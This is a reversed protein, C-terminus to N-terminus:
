ESIVSYLESIDCHRFPIRNELCLTRLLGNTEVGNGGNIGFSAEEQKNEGIFLAADAGKSFLSGTLMSADLVMNSLGDMVGNGKKSKFHNKVKKGLEYYKFSRINKLMQIEVEEEGFWERELFKINNSLSNYNIIKNKLLIQVRKDSVESIGRVMARTNRNSCSSRFSVYKLDEAIKKGLTYLVFEVINMSKQDIKLIDGGKSNIISSINVDDSVSMKKVKESLYPLANGLNSEVSVLIVSFSSDISKYYSLLNDYNM